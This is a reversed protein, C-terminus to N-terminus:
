QLFGSRQRSRQGILAYLYRDPIVTVDIRRSVCCGDYAIGGLVDDDDDDDGDDDDVVIEAAGEERKRKKWKEEQRM